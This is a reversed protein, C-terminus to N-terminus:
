DEEGAYPIISIHFLPITPLYTDQRIKSGM